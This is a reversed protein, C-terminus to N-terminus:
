LPREHREHTRRRDGGDRAQARAAPRENRRQRHDAEHEDHASGFAGARLPEGIERQHGDRREGRKRQPPEARTRAGERRQEHQRQENEGPGIAAPERPLASRHDQRREATDGQSRQQSGDRRPAPEGCADERHRSGVRREHGGIQEVPGVMREVRRVRGGPQRPELTRHEARGHHAVAIEEDRATSPPRSAPSPADACRRPATSVASSASRKSRSNKATLSSGAVTGTAAAISSTSTACRRARTLGGLAGAARGAGAARTARCAGTARHDSRASLEVAAPALVDRDSAAGAQEMRRVQPIVRLDFSGVAENYASIASDLQRGVKALPEVFRGLRRHLERASDAIERASEAILEQRWGYHVAWLLGILTTPTAMLVQQQVGYEILGPDHALAAQYIGDSPIFMVVFEPTSELHRQYGKAALKSIHERTQRAHRAGHLERDDESSAELAQLYADLPVKSDVVVVKGGPLRVIMDPRLQGEATHVTSQEIFDCHSVMGAMEVVNRLQLEGWSGRTTPRKLAAVLNGTESRLTGVGDGLQRLMQALEGQAQRRERELRGIESEMRGLKESVPGMLGKLEETRRAMEGAAREEDARRSEAVRQALSDGTQSLVDLSIAKLEERMREREEDARRRGAGALARAALAGGLIGAILLLISPLSM